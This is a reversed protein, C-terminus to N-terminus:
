HSASGQSRAQEAESQAATREAAAVFQEGFVQLIGGTGVPGSAYAVNALKRILAGVFGRHREPCEAAAYLRDLTEIVDQTYHIPGLREQLAVLPDTGLPPAEDVPEAKGPSPTIKTNM